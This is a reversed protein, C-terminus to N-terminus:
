ISTVRSPNVEQEKRRLSSRRIILRPSLLITQPGVQNNGQWGEENIKVLEVALRAMSYQDQKGEVWQHNTAELAAEILDGKWASIGQRAEWGELPGAIHDLNQDGQEFLYIM